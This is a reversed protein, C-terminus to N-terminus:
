PCNEVSAADTDRPKGPPAPSIKRRSRVSNATVSIQKETPNSLKATETGPETAQGARGRAGQRHPFFAPKFLKRWHARNVHPCSSLCDSTRISRAQGPQKVYAVNFFGYSIEPCKLVLFCKNLAGGPSAKKAAPLTRKINLRGSFGSDPVIV